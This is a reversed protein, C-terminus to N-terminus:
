LITKANKKCIVFLGYNVSKYNKFINLESKVNNQGKLCDNNGQKNIVVSGQCIVHRHKSTHRHAQSAPNAKKWSNLRQYIKCFM